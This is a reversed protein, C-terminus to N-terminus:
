LKKHLQLIKLQREFIKVSKKDKVSTKPTTMRFEKASDATKALINKAM